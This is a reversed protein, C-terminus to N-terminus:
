SIIIGLNLNKEKVKESPAPALRNTNEGFKDPRTSMAEGYVIDGNTVEGYSM